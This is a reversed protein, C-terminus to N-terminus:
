AQVVSQKPVPFVEGCWTSLSFALSLGLAGDSEDLVQSALSAGAQNQLSKRQLVCTQSTIQLGPQLTLGGEGVWARRGESGCTDTTPTVRM